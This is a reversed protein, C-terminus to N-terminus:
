SGETVKTEGKAQDASMWPVPEVEGVFTRSLRDSFVGQYDFLRLLLLELYWLALLYSADKVGDGKLQQKKDPHVIRNRVWTLAEPGSGNIQNTKKRFEPIQPLTDTPIRAWRLLLLLRDAANLRDYGEKTLWQEMLVLVVWTLAELAAFTTMIGSDSELGTNASTYAGILWKLSDQLEQEQFIRWKTWFSGFLTAIDRPERQPYWNVQIQGPHVRQPSSWRVFTERGENNLGVLLPQGVQGGRLFSLFWYLADRISTTDKFDFISGDKRRISVIHTFVFSRSNLTISWTERFDPRADIDISWDKTDFSIRGTWILDPSRLTSTGPYLTCNILNLRLETLHKSDGILVSETLTDELYYPEPNLDIHTQKPIPFASSYDPPILQGEGLGILTKCSIKWVVHPSPVMELIIQGPGSATTGKAGAVKLPGSYLFIPQGPENFPYIVETPSAPDQGAKM